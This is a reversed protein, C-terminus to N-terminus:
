EATVEPCWLHRGMGQAKDTTLSYGQWVMFCRESNESEELRTILM